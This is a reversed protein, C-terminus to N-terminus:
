VLDATKYGSEILATQFLMQATDVAAKDEKDAKINILLDVIVSHNPNVELKKRGPMM